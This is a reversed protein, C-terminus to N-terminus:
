SLSPRNLLIFITSGRRVWRGSRAGRRAQHAGGGGFSGEASGNLERALGPAHRAAATRLSMGGLSMEFMESATAGPAGDAAGGPEPGAPGPVAGAPPLARRIVRRLALGLARGIPRRVARGAARAM